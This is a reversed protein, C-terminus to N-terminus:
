PFHGLPLLRFAAAYPCYVFFPLLRLPTAESFYDFPLVTASPPYGLPFYSFRLLMLPTASPPYGMATCVALALAFSKCASTLSDLAALEWDDAADLLQM